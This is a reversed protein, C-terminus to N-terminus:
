RDKGPGGGGGGGGHGAGGGGGRGPNGGGAGPGPSAGGGGGRESASPGGGASGGRGGGSGGGGGAGMQAGGGPSPREAARPAQQQPSARGAGDGSREARGSRESGRGQEAARSSPGREPRAREQAGGARSRQAADDSASGRRSESASGSREGRASGRDANRERERNSRAGEASSRGSKDEIRSSGAGNSLTESRSQSSKNPSPERRDGRGAKGAGSDSGTAARDRTNRDTEGTGERDTRPREARARDGDPRRDGQAGAGDRGIRERDGSTRGPEATRGELPENTRDRANRDDGTSGAGERNPGRERAQDGGRRGTAPAEATINSARNEISRVREADRPAKTPRANSLTPNYVQLANGEVRAEGPRSAERVEHVRVQEGTVREIIRVEVSKNVVVNNVVRVSGLPRTDRFIERNRGIDIIRTRLDRALFDRTSVFRWAGIGITGAAVTTSFAYGSGSPSLPAWGIYDDSSHWSVWAPAWRNGPVWFWGNDDDYGWRGYHYTAWGWDENSVWVWGYRETYEWHGDSYPRWDARVNATCWVYGYRATQLWRGHRSLPEFFVDISLQQAHAPAAVFIASPAASGAAAIVIAAILGNSSRSKSFRM